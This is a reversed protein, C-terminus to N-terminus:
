QVARLWGTLRERRARTSRRCATRVHRSPRRRAPWPGRVEGEHLVWICDAMDGAVCIDIGAPCQARAAGATPAQSVRLLLYICRGVQVWTLVHVAVKSWSGDCSSARKDRVCDTMFRTIGVCQGHRPERRRVRRARAKIPAMMNAVARLEREPFDSFLALREFIKRNVVLAIERRLTHPLEEMIVVEENGEV